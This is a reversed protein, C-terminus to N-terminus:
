GNTLRVGNSMQSVAQAFAAPADPTVVITEGEFRLVVANADNTAYAKYSGLISNHFRGVFGFLGGIGLARISGMTANPNVEVSSLGALDFRTSWGLRHILLEGDRVSYGRIAFTAAVLFIALIGYRGWGETSFFVVVLIL